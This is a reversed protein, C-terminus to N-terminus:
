ARLAFVAVTVQARSGPLAIGLPLRRLWSERATISGSCQASEYPTGIRSSKPIGQLLAM